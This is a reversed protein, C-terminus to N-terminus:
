GHDAGIVREVGALHFDQGARRGSCETGAATASHRSVRDFHQGNEHFFGATARPRDRNSWTGPPAPSPDNGPSWRTTIDHRADSSKTIGFDVVTAEGDDAVVISSPKIDRPDPGGQAAELADAVCAATYMAKSLPLRGSELVASLSKGLLLQMVLDAHLRGDHMASGFDHM